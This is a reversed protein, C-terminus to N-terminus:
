KRPGCAIRQFTKCGQHLCVQKSSLVITVPVNDKVDFSVANGKGKSQCFADAAPAGCNAAWDHCWDLPLGERDAFLVTPFSYTVGGDPHNQWSMQSQTFPPPGCRMKVETVFRADHNVWAHVGTVVQGPPCSEPPTPRAAPPGGAGAFRLTTSVQPHPPLLSRCQSVVASAFAANNVLVKEVKWSMLAAGDPCTQRNPGGGSGGAPKLLTRTVVPQVNREDWRACIPAISDIWAGTKGNLGIVFQGNPCEMTVPAFLEAHAMFPWAAIFVGIRIALFPKM